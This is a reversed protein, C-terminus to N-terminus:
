EFTVFVDVERGSFNTTIDVNEDALALLLRGSDLQALAISPSLVFCMFLVTLMYRLQMM